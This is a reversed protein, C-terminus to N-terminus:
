ILVELYKQITKDVRLIKAYRTLKDLDMKPHILYDSLAEKLVHIDFKLRVFDCITKEMDYLKIEQNEIKISIIGLSFNNGSFTKVKIQPYEPRKPIYSRKRDIAVYYLNPIYSSLELLELASYLCFVSNPIIKSVDIYQYLGRFDMEGWRFLGRKIEDIIGEEKLKPLYYYSFGANMFEKTRMYGNSQIFQNEITEFTKHNM